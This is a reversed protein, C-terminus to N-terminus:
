YTPHLRHAADRQFFVIWGQRAERTQTGEALESWTQYQHGCARKKVLSSGIGM